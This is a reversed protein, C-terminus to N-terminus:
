ESEQRRKQNARAAARVIRNGDKELHKLINSPTNTNQAIAYRELWSPIGRFTKSFHKNTTSRNGM